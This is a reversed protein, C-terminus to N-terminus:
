WGHHFGYGFRHRPYPGHWHDYYWPDYYYPHYPGPRYYYVQEIRLFKTTVTEEGGDYVYPWRIRVSGLDALDTEPPLDFVLEYTADAGGAVTITGTRNRGAYAEAGGAAHGEDDLLRVDAPRLTLAKEGANDIGVRVHLASFSVGEENTDTRGRAALRVTVAPKEPPLRYTCQAVWDAGTPQYDGAPRFHTWNVGGCGAALLGAALALAAALGVGHRQRACPQIM